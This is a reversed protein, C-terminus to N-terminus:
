SAGSAVSVVIWHNHLTDRLTSSEGSRPMDEAAAPRLAWKRGRRPFHIQSHGQGFLLYDSAQEHSLWISDLLTIRHLKDSNKEWECMKSQM